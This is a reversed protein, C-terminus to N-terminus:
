GGPLPVVVVACAAHEVCHRSVSGLLMGEFGGRGRTGIVLVAAHKSEEILVGAARGEVVRPTVRVVPEPGLVEMLLTELQRRADEEYDRGTYAYIEPLHWAIVALLEAGTLEAYRTAWRLAERSSPSGDVGVVVLGHADTMETTM